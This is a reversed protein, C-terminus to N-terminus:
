LRRDVAEEELSQRIGEGVEAYRLTVGLDALMRQNSVRRSENLFSLRSAGFTRRAEERSVQPPPPLGAQRAVEILFGTPSLPAGDTVNYVGQAGPNAAAALCAAVLDDVHIRNGPGSEALRIAPERRRLRELPLRGPGYIGPARLIVLRVGREACWARARDEADVRRIARHTLPAPPTQETVEGGDANGYVGTTGIYTFVRPPARLAQLFRALRQDSHGEPPPPVLYFLADAPGPDSVPADLDIQRGAVGAEGLRALSAPSAVIGTVDHTTALARALRLGVYGCGAVLARPRPAPSATM